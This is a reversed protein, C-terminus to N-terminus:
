KPLAASRWEFIRLWAASQRQFKLAEDVGEICRIAADREAKVKDLEAQLSELEDAAQRNIACGHIGCNHEHGCGFCRHNDSGIRRLAQPLEKVAM